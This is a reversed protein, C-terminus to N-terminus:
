IWRWIGRPLEESQKDLNIPPPYRCQGYNVPGFPTTDYHRCSNSHANIKDYIESM